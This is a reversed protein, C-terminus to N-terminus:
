ESSESGLGVFFIDHHSMMGVLEHVSYFYIQFFSHGIAQGCANTLLKVHKVGWLM